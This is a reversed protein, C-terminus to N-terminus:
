PGRRQSELLPRYHDLDPTPLGPVKGLDDYRRLRVADRAFPGAEFARAEAPAYPGGQLALTRVSAASLGAHYAPDIACLYRKAEVHLRIPEVVAPGFHPALYAATVAPHAPDSAGLLYGFDHLLGAAVLTPPAGDREAAHATQLMHETMSVAEGYGEHGRARFLSLITDVIDAGGPPM